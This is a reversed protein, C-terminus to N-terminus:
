QPQNSASKKAVGYGKPDNGGCMFVIQLFKQLHQSNVKYKWCNVKLGSLGIFTIETKQYANLSHSNELHNDHSYCFRKIIQRRPVTKDSKQVFQKKGFADTHIRESIQTM